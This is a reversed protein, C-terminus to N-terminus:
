LPYFETSVTDFLTKLDSVSYFRPKILGLDIYDILVHRGSYIEQCATCERPDEQRLIVSHSFSTHGIRLRSLVVEEKRSKRFGPPWHGLTPKIKFLKNDPCSSWCEQCTNSIFRNIHPRLDTDPVQSFFIDQSLSEKAAMDAAENGRIGIHSPIWCFHIAKHHLKELLKLILPNDM